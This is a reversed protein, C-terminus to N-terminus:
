EVKTGLAILRRSAFHFPEGDFDGWAEEFRLGAKEFLEIVEHLSYVRISVNFEKRQGDKKEIFVWYDESRSTQVNFSHEQLVYIDERELWHSPTFNRVLYDRNALDILFKGGPKLKKVASHLVKENEEDEQFYGFSTFINIVADFKQEFPILRMDGVRFDIDVGAEAAEKKAIDIYEGSLDLGSMRYGEKALAITHRGPGCCLDLIDSDPVLNLAKTILAVEEVTREESMAAFSARYYHDGYMGKYWDNM